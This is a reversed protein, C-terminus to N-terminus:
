SSPNEQAAWPWKLCVSVCPNLTFMASAFQIVVFHVVFSRRRFTGPNSASSTWLGSQLSSIIRPTNPAMNGKKWSLGYQFCLFCALYNLYVSDRCVTKNSQFTSCLTQTYFVVASGKVQISEAKLLGQPKSGWICFLFFFYKNFDM